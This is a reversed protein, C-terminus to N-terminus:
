IRERRGPTEREPVVVEVPIRRPRFSFVARLNENKIDIGIMKPAFMNVILLSVRGLSSIQAVRTENMM